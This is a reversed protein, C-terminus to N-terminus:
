KERAFHVSAEVLQKGAGAGRLSIGVETHDIIIKNAGAWVYTMEAAREGNETIYFAGKEGNDEQNITM